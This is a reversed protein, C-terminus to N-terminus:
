DEKKEKTILELQERTEKELSLIHVGLLQLLQLLGQVRSVRGTVERTVTRVATTLEAHHVVKLIGWILHEHYRGEPKTSDNGKQRATVQPRQQKGKRTREISRRQPKQRRRLASPHNQERPHDQPTKKVLSRNKKRSTEKESIHLLQGRSWSIQTKM